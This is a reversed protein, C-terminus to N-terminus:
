KGKMNLPTLSTKMAVPATNGFQLRWYFRMLYINGAKSVEWLDSFEDNTDENPREVNIVDKEKAM